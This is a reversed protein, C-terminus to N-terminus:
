SKPKLFLVEAREIWGKRLDMRFWGDSNKYNIRVGSRPGFEKLDYQEWTKGMDPSWIIGCAYTSAPACHTAVFVGDQVLMNASEFMPNFLMTHQSTDTIDKPDCVFIGRDHRNAIAPGNADAIWYVKDGIFNIGGCKFRSNSDVSIVHKWDWADAKADYTGRIWHVEKGFSRDIDGTCAYFANEAPNYTVNHVHRAILQNSPDGLMPADPPADKQQFKPNQGFAYALKVTEGNDTSYYVNVPVAGGLVNCYNGWVLMEKGNVEFCHEGDLSHFYWGPQDAKVPTHPRYESGDPRKVIIERHTKLNDTSLFLRNLTAFLVNGNKLIVSFTINQAEPFEARHPWTKGNDESLLIQTGQFAFAKNDRQTDIYPDDASPMRYFFHETDGEIAAASLSSQFGSLWLGGATAATSRLFQRRHLSTPANM